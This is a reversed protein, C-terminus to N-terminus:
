EEPRPASEPSGVPERHSLPRQKAPADDASWPLSGVFRVEVWGAVSRDIRWAWGPCSGDHTADALTDDPNARRALLTERTLDAQLLPVAIADVLRAASSYSAPNERWRPWQDSLRADIGAADTICSPNDRVTEILARQADLSDAVAFRRSAAGIAARARGIGTRGPPEWLLFSGESEMAALMNEGFDLTDLRALWGDPVHRLRRLVGAQESGQVRANGVVIRSRKEQISSRLRWAADLARLAAPDDGHSAADLSALLLIRNVWLHGLLHGVQEDPAYDPLHWEPLPDTQLIDVLHAIAARHKELWAALEEPPPFIGAGDSAIEGDIYASLGLRHVVPEVPAPERTALTLPFGLARAAADARGATSNDVLVAIPAPRLPGVSAEWRVKAADLRRTAIASCAAWTAGVV